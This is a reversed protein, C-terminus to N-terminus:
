CFYLRVEPPKVDLGPITRYDDVTELWTASDVNLHPYIFEDEVAKSASPDLYAIQILYDEELISKSVGLREPSLGLAAVGGGKGNGRNKMQLLATLFHKGSIPVSCAAGVVGCGGEAEVKRTLTLGEVMQKRSAIIRSAIDM